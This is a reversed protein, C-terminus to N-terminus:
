KPVRRSAVIGRIIGAAPYDKHLEAAEAIRLLEGFTFSQHPVRAEVPPKAEERLTALHTKGRSIEKLLWKSTWGSEADVDVGALGVPRSDYTVMLDSFDAIPEIIREIDERRLTSQGGERCYLPGAARLLQDGPKEGPLLIIPPFFIRILLMLSQRAELKAADADGDLVERLAVKLREVALSWLPWHERARRKLDEALASPNIFGSPQPPAIENGLEDENEAWAVPNLAEENAEAISVWMRALRCIDAAARRAEDYPKEGPLNTAYDARKKKASTKAKSEKGV